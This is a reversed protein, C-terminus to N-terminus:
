PAGRKRTRMTVPNMRFAVIFRLNAIEEGGQSKLRFFSAPPCEQKDAAILLLTGRRGGEPLYSTARVIPWAASPSDAESGSKVSPSDIAAQGACPFLAPLM